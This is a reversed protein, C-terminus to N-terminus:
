AISYFETRSHWIVVGCEQMSFIMKGAEENRKQARRQLIWHAFLLQGSFPSLVPLLSHHLRILVLSHIAEVHKVVDDRRFRHLGKGTMARIELEELRPARITDFSHYETGAIDAPVSLRRVNALDAVVSPFYCNAERDYIRVSRINQALKVVMTLIHHNTYCGNLAVQQLTPPWADAVADLSFNANWPFQGSFTVHRLNPPWKLSLIGGQNFFRTHRPFALTSLDQMEETATMVQDFRLGGSMPFLDITRLKRCSSLPSVSPPLPYLPNSSIHDAM